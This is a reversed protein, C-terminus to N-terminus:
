DNKGGSLSDNIYKKSMLILHNIAKYAFDGDVYDIKHNKSDIIKREEGAMQLLNYIRANKTSHSCCYTKKGFIMSFALGHFSNTIVIGAEYFFRLFEIPGVNKISKLHINTNLKCNTGYIIKVEYNAFQSSVQDVTKEIWESQEMAYVLIYKKRMKKEKVLAIWEDKTLLFVPDVVINKEKVNILSSTISYGSKERFSLSKFSPLYKMIAWKEIDSINDRGFSSAYSIKIADDFPLYYSFSLDSLTLNLIQDSGSILVDYNLKANLLERDGYFITKSKKYYDEQFRRFKVIKAREARASRVIFLKLLHLIKRKLSRRDIGSNPVFDILEAHYGCNNLYNTLAFAQLNAGSNIERHFTLIGIKM